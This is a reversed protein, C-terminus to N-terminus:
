TNPAFEIDDDEFLYSATLAYLTTGAVLQNFGHVAGKPIAVARGTQLRAPQLSLFNIGLVADWNDPEFGGLSLPVMVADSKHHRHPRMSERFTLVDFSVDKLDDQPVKGLFSKAFGLPITFYAYGDSDTMTENGLLTKISSLARPTTLAASFIRLEEISAM